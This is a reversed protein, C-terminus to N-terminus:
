PTVINFWFEFTDLLSMLETFAEKRGQIEVQGSGVENALSSEGVAAGAAFSGAM